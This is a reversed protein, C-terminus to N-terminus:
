CDRMRISRADDHTIGIELRHSVINSIRTNVAANVKTEILVGTLPLTMGDTLIDIVVQQLLDILLLQVPLMNKVLEHDFKAAEFTTEQSTTVLDGNQQTQFVIVIEVLVISSEGM